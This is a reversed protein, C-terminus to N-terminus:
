IVTGNKGFAKQLLEVPTESLLKITQIGMSFLHATTEEGVGPIKQVSMPAIFERETGKEIQLQGNPKAKSTAMKSVLKNTSLGFSIPLGTEKIVKQRTESAWKYCGFFREMGTLDIYFEDISRKEFVPARGSVIESVISSYRSYREMDGSIIIAEPCLKMATRIPMASHVGFQRTEYSCSAVVGRNSNGGVILPKGILASNKLREVSVFFSDLDLHLVSRDM